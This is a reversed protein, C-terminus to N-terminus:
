PQVDPTLSLRSVMPVANKDDKDKEAGPPVQFDEDFKETNSDPLPGHASAQDIQVSTLSVVTALLLALVTIRLAHRM